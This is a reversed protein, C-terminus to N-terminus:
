AMRGGPAKAEELETQLAAVPDLPTAEAAGDNELEVVDDGGLEEVNKDNKESQAMNGKWERSYDM